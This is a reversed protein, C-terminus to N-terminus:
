LLAKTHVTHFKTINSKSCLGSITSTPLIPGNVRWKRVLQMGPSKCFHQLGGFTWWSREKCTDKYFLGACDNESQKQSNHAVKDSICFWITYNPQNVSYEKQSFAEKQSLCLSTKINTVTSCPIFCLICQVAWFVPGNWVNAVKPTCEITLQLWGCHAQFYHTENVGSMKFLVSIHWTVVLFCETFGTM